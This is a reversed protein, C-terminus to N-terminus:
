HAIYWDMDGNIGSPNSDLNSSQYVKERNLNQAKFTFIFIERNGIFIFKINLRSDFDHKYVHFSFQRWDSFMKKEILQLTM